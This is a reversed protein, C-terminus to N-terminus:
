KCASDLIHSLHVWRHLPFLIPSMFVLITTALPAPPPLPACHSNPIILSTCVISVCCPGVACCLSSYEIDRSLNYHFLAHFLLTYRHLVSASQQVATILAVSYILWVEILFLYIFHLNIVHDHELFAHDIFVPPQASLTLQGKALSARIYM